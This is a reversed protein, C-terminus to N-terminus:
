PTLRLREEIAAARAIVQHRLEEPLDELSRLEGNRVASAREEPSMLDMEEPTIVRRNDM